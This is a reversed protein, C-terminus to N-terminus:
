NFLIIYDNIIKKHDLVRFILEKNTKFFGTTQNIVGRDQIIILLKIIKLRKQFNIVNKISIYIQIHNHRYLINIITLSM